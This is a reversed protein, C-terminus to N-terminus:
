MPLCTRRTSLRLRKPTATMATPDSTAAHPEVLGVAETDALGEEAADGDTTAEGIAAEGVGIDTAAALAWILDSTDPAGGSSKGVVIELV